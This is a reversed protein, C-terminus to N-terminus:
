MKDIAENIKNLLNQTEDYADGGAKAQEIAKEAAMKAKAYDKTKYLLAAYTDCNYYQCDLDVSEKAWNVAKALMKANDVNEYFAWAVNNLTSSNKESLTNIYKNAYKAYADWNEQIQNYGMYAYNTLNKAKDGGHAKLVKKIQAMTVGEENSAALPVSRIASRYIADNVKEEGFSDVFKSKNNSLMKFSKSNIKDAFALIFQQISKDNLDDNKLKAIYEKTVETFPLNAKRLAFAYNMVTAKDRKGNEYKNKLAFLAKTPDTAAKADELFEEVATYGTVRHQLEADSNFFLLTPYATVSHTSAFDLGEGKEMDLKLNIYNNNMYEGVAKQPFVDRAMKKCPGCWTAYADVFIPKGTEKAEARVEDWTSSSFQLGDKKDKQANLSVTIFCLALLLYTGLKFVNM